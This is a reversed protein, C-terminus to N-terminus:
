RPPSHFYKGEIEVHQVFIPISKDVSEGVPVLQFFKGQKELPYSSKLISKDVCRKKRRERQKIRNQEMQEPHEARYKQLYEPHAAFWVRTNTRRDAAVDPNNDCWQKHSANRRKRQCEPDKCAIPNKCRPDPYFLCSCIRCRIRLRIM